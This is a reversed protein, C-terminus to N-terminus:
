FSSSLPFSFMSRKPGRFPIHARFFSSLLVRTRSPDRSGLLPCSMMANVTIYAIPLKFPPCGLGLGLRLVLVSVSREVDDMETINGPFCQLDHWSIKAYSLSYQPVTIVFQVMPYPIIPLGRRPHRPVQGDVISVAM